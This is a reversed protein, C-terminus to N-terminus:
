IVEVEKLRTHQPPLLQMSEEEDQVQPKFDSIEGDIQIESEDSYTELYRQSGKTHLPYNQSSSEAISTM